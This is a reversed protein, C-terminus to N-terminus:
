KKRPPGGIYTLTTGEQDDRLKTVDRTGLMKEIICYQQNRFTDFSIPTYNSATSFPTGLWQAVINHANYIVLIMAYIFIGWFESVSSYVTLPILVYLYLWLVAKPISDLIPAMLPRRSALLQNKLVNIEDLKRLALGYVEGSLMKRARMAGMVCNLEFMAGDLTTIEGEDNMGLLGFTDRSCKDEIDFDFKKYDRTVDDVGFMSFHYRTYVMFLGRARNILATEDTRIERLERDAMAHRACQTGRLDAALQIVVARTELVLSYFIRGMTSVDYIDKLYVGQMMWTVTSLANVFSNAAITDAIAQVRLAMAWAVAYVIYYFIYVSVVYIASTTTLWFFTQMFQGLFTHPTTAGRLRRGVYMDPDM